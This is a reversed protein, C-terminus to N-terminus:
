GLAITEHSVLMLRPYSLGPMLEASVDEKSLICCCCPPRSRFNDRSNPDFFFFNVFEFYLLSRCRITAYNRKIERTEEFLQLLIVIM